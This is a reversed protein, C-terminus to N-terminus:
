PLMHAAPALPGSRGCHPCRYTEAKPNKDEETLMLGCQCKGRYRLLVLSRALAIAFAEKGKKMEAAQRQLRAVQFRSLPKSGAMAGTAITNNVSVTHCRIAQM